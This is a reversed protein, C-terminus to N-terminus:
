VKWKMASGGWFVFLKKKKVTPHCWAKLNFPLATMEIARQRIYGPLDAGVNVLM